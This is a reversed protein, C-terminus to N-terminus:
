GPITFLKHFDRLSAIALFSPLSGIESVAPKQFRTVAIALADPSPALADPFFPTSDLAEGHARYSLRDFNLRVTEPILFTRVAKATAIVSLRKQSPIFFHGKPDIL